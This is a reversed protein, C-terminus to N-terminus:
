AQQWDAPAAFRLLFPSLYRASEESYARPANYIVLRRYVFMEPRRSFTLAAVKARSHVHGAYDVRGTLWLGAAAALDTIRAVEHAPILLYFRGAEGLLRAVLRVLEHHPLLDTHRALRRLNVSNKSHREFFPPNSIILDYRQDCCEAYDQISQWVLELRESWPSASFNVAADRCAQETLEVATVHGAGLQMLMLSLLGSGAGIDLVREGGAVPAMAGFLTADTCVKMASEGQQVSFQQFRFISVM